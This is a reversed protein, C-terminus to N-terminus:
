LEDKQKNTEDNLPKMAPFLIVDRISSENALLMTLRDIGLGEGATPPLGYGLARVFDEDMEHAEDDGANKADIQAKFRNYQDIPDNLENFGNAVERGAIFLEFREAIDPNEENRRALPSIQIPYDIIFTPDILKEEVFLDFLEEYLQGINMGDKVAEGKTHLYDYISAASKLAEQPVGGIQILADKFSIKRFEKSFDIEIAGYPLKLPLNLKKLLVNFMEETLKMLDHYTHYAWYFEIMTFEPNHTQDMGENRFNRNIEFVAEFGGVVLRKLYLEPAIRLYRDVGLANHYTVFPKANAGGAIPHMMPTEVELFSREEFFHRITSVIKSRLKFTEKVSPNMIMDLYRKRYRQEIDTLGHFKEPLPTISKTALELTNVHLSLEGTKTVFPFGKVCIIDGVEILKKVNDFWDAGISEKSFYIQLIGDEDEIKAFAAKGMHRLFKIRGILTTEKSEDRQPENKAVYAYAKLFEATSTEKTLNHQYPNKGISRLTDAKQIRQLEYPTDFM